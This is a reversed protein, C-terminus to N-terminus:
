EKTCYPCKGNNLVEKNAYKPEVEWGQETRSPVGPAVQIRQVTWKNANKWVHWASCAADRTAKEAAQRAATEAALKDAETKKIALESAVEADKLMDLKWQPIKKPASM